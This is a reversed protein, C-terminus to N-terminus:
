LRYSVLLYFTTTHCTISQDNSMGASGEYRAEVALPGAMIGAGGLWVPMFKRFNDGLFPEPTTTKDVTNYNTLISKNSLVFAAGGGLQVFPRVKGQPYTWRFQLDVNLAQYNLDLDANNFMNQQYIPSRSKFSHYLADFVFAFQERNRPLSFILGAGGAIGNSGPVDAGAYTPSTSSAAVKSHIYGLMPFVHVSGKDSPSRREVTDLNHNNYAFYLRRFANEEYRSRDIQSKLAPYDQMLTTLQDKYAEQLLLRRRGDEPRVMMSSVLRLQKLNGGDPQSTFFYPTGTSDKYAYLTLKGTIIVRFFATREVPISRYSEDAVINPEVSYPYVTVTSSFYDEKEVHFGRLDTATYTTQKSANDQFDIHKPSFGWQRYDIQGRLTDGNKLIVFGDRFNKQASLPLAVTLAAIFLSCCSLRIM